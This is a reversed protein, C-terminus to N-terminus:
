EPEASPGAKAREHRHRVACCANLASARTAISASLMSMKSSADSCRKGRHAIQSDGATQLGREGTREREHVDCDFDCHRIAAIHRAVDM